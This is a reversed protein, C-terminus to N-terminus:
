KSVKKIIKLFQKEQLDWNYKEKVLKENLHVIEKVSDKNLIEITKNVLEKVNEPQVLFGNKKDIIYHKFETMDSVIPVVGCALYEFLKNPSGVNNYFRNKFPVFGIKAINLYQPVQIKSVPPLFTVAKTIKYSLVKKELEKQFQPSKAKGLFLLQTNPDKKYIESFADLLIDCGYEELITGLYILITKNNLGLKTILGGDKNNKNFINIDPCNLIVASNEKKGHQKQLFELQSFSATTVYAASKYLLKELWFFLIRGIKWNLNDNKTKYYYWGVWPDPYDYIFKTKKGLTSFFGVIGGIHVYCLVLDQPKLTKRLYKTAKILYDIKSKAKTEIINEGKGSCVVWKIKYNSKVLSAALKSIRPQEPNYAGYVCIYVIGPHVQVLNTKFGEKLAM